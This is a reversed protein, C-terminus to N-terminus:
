ICKGPSADLWITFIPIMSHIIGNLSFIKGTGIAHMKNVLEPKKGLPVLSAINIKM